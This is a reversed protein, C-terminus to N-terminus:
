SCRLQGPVCVLAAGHDYKGSHPAACHFSRREGLTHITPPTYDAIASERVRVLMPSPYIYGLRLPKCLHATRVKTESSTNAHVTSTDRPRSFLLRARTQLADMCTRWNAPINDNMKTRFSWAVRHLPRARAHARGRSYQEVEAFEQPRNEAKPEDGTRWHMSATKYIIMCAHVCAHTPERKFNHCYTSRRACEACYHQRCSLDRPM